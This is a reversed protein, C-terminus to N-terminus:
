FTKNVIGNTIKAFFGLIDKYLPGLKDSMKNYYPDGIIYGSYLDTGINRERGYEDLKKITLITPKHEFIPSQKIIYMFQPTIVTSLKQIRDEYHHLQWTEEPITKLYDFLSTLCEKEQEPKVFSRASPLERLTAWRVINGFSPKSNNQQQMSIKPIM